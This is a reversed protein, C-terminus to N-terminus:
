KVERFNKLSEIEFIHVLEHHLILNLTEKSVKPIIVVYSNSTETMWGMVGDDKGCIHKALAFEKPKLIYAKIPKSPYEIDFLLKWINRLSEQTITTIQYKRKQEESM